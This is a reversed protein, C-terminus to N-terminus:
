RVSATRGLWARAGNLAGNLWPSARRGTLEASGRDQNGLAALLDRGHRLRQAVQTKVWAEARDNGRAKAVALGAVSLPVDVVLQAALRGCERALFARRGKLLSSRLADAAARDPPVFTAVIRQLAALTRETARGDSPGLYAEFLALRGREPHQLSADGPDRLLRDLEERSRASHLAEPHAEYPILEDKCSGYAEGWCTYVVRRNLLLAELLATTQFGIVLDSNALLHRTDLATPLVVASGPVLADRQLRERLAAIDPLPQQPHPKILLQYGGRNVHELLVSETQSRLENWSLRGSDFDEIPIYAGLEYSLFTIVKRGPLISIGLEAFSKWQSRDSYLDFRPQGTVEILDPSTGANLWFEKQRESCVTMFDAAFPFYRGVARAFVNMTYPAITTEKQVVVVPIGLAHAAPTLDRIYPFTDSPLIILEFPFIKYLAFLLERCEAAWARRADAYKDDWFLSLDTGLVEEPLRRLFPQRFYSFHVARITHRGQAAAQLTLLDQGFFHDIALVRV